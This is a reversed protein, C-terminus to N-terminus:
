GGQVHQRAHQSQRPRGSNDWNQAGKSINGGADESKGQFNLVSALNDISDLTKLHKAGPVGTRLELTQRYTVKAHGCIGESRFGNATGDLAWFTEPHESDLVELFLELTKSGM